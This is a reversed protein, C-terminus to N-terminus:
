QVRFFYNHDITYQDLPTSSLNTNTFIQLNKNPNSITMAFDANTCNKGRIGIAGGDALGFTYRGKKKLIMLVEFKYKNNNEEYVFFKAGAGLTDLVRGKIAVFDFSDTATFFIRNVSDLLLCGVGCNPLIANRYDVIGGGPGANLIQTSFESIIKITDGVRYNEKDNVLNADINFTYVADKCPKPKEKDCSVQSFIVLILLFFRM